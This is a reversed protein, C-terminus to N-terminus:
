AEVFKLMKKADLRKALLDSPNDEGKRREIKLDNSSVRQQVWLFRTAIHRMKGLGRGTAIAKAASSDTGVKVATKVAYDAEHGYDELCARMGLGLSSAKVVSYYESEGSSDRICM